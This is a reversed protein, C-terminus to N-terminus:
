ACPECLSTMVARVHCAHWIYDPATTRRGVQVNQLWHQAAVIELETLQQLEYRTVDDIVTYREDTLSLSPEGLRINNDVDRLSRVQQCQAFSVTAVLFLLFTHTPYKFYEM